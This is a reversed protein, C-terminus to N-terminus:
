FPSMAFLYSATQNQGGPVTGPVVLRPQKPEVTVLNVIPGGFYM